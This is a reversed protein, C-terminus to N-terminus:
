NMQNLEISGNMQNVNMVASSEGANAKVQPLHVLKCKSLEGWLKMSRVTLAELGPKSVV